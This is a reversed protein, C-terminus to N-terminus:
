LQVVKVPSGVCVPLLPYKKVVFPEDAEQDADTRNERESDTEGEVAVVATTDTTVMDEGDYDDAAAHIASMFSANSSEIDSRATGKVGNPPPSNIVLTGTNYTEGREVSSTDENNSFQSGRIAMLFKSDADLNGEHEIAQCIDNSRSSGDRTTHVEPHQKAQLPKAKSAPNMIFSGSPYYPKTQGEGIDGVGKSDEEEGFPVSEARLAGLFTANAQAMPDDRSTCHDRGIEREGPAANFLTNSLANGQQHKKHSTSSPPPYAQRRINTLTSSPNASAVHLASLFASDAETRGSQQERHNSHSQLRSQEDEDDDNSSSSSDDHSARFYCDDHDDDDDNDDDASSGQKSSATNTEMKADIKM